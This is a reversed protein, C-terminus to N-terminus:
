EEFKPWRVASWLILAATVTSSVIIIILFAPLDQETAARMAFQFINFVLFIAGFVLNVIRSSKDKLVVTLFALVFPILWRCTWIVLDTPAIGADGSIIEAILGNKYLYLAVEATISAGTFIWLVLIRIKLTLIKMTEGPMDVLIPLRLQALM